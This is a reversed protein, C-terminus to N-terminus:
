KGNSLPCSRGNTDIYQEFDNKQAEIKGSAIAANFKAIVTATSYEYNSGIVAANLLAAVTQRGLAALGGGGNGLVQDLTMAGFANSGFVSAFTQERSYGSGTWAFKANKWFGPSCGQGGRALPTVSILYDNYDSDRVEEGALLELANDEAGVLYKTGASNLFLAFQQFPQTEFGGVADSCDTDPSSCGGTAVNFTNTIYFGWPNGNVMEPTITFTSGVSKAGFSAIEKLQLVGDDDRYFYGIDSEEGAISGELKLTYSQEGSFTFPAPAGPAPAAAGSLYQTYQTTLANALTGPSMSTCTSVITKSAFYGVNCANPGLLGDASLNDWFETTARGSNNATFTRWYTTPDSSVVVDSPSPTIDFAPLATPALRTASEPGAIVGADSSCAATFALAGLAAVRSAQVFPRTAKV